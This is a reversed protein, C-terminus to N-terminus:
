AAEEDLEFRVTASGRTSTTGDAREIWLSLEAIGTAGDVSTSEVKARCVLPAGPLDVGRYETRMSQVWGRREASWTELLEGLFAAKLLGHVIVSDFGRERATVDDFHIPSYDDAAGAYQVLQVRTPVKVLPPLFTGPVVDAFRSHNM